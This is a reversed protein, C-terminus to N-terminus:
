DACLRLVGCPRPFGSVLICVQPLAEAESGEDKGLALGLFSMSQGLPVGLGLLVVTVEGVWMSSPSRHSVPGVLSGVRDVDVLEVGKQGM